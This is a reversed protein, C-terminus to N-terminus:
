GNFAQVFAVYDAASWNSGYQGAMAASAENLSYARAGATSIGKLATGMPTAASSASTLDYTAVLAAVMHAANCSTATYVAQAAAALTAGADRQSVASGWESDTFVSAVVGFAAGNWASEFYASLAASVANLSFNSKWLAVSLAGVNQPCQTLNFALALPQAMKDADTASLALAATVAVSCTRPDVLASSGVFGSQLAALMSTPTAASGFVSVLIQTATNLSSVKGAAVLTTVLQTQSFAEGIYNFAAACAVALQTNTLSMGAAIYAASVSNWLDTFATTPYQLLIGTAMANANATGAASAIAHALDAIAPGPPAYVSGLAAASLKADSQALAAAAQALTKGQSLAARAGTIAVTLGDDSAVLLTAAMLGASTTPLGGLVAPAIDGVGLSTQAVAIGLPVATLPQTSQLGAVLGAGLNAPTATYIPQVAPAIDLAAFSSAGLANSMNALSVSGAPYATNLAAALKGATNTQAGYNAHLIPGVDTVPYSCGSLASALNALIAGPYASILVTYMLGANPVEAAFHTKIVLATNVIEYPSAALAVTMSEANLSAYATSLVTYMQEATGLESAYQTKLVPAVLNAAYPIQALVGVLTAASTIESPYLQALTQAIDALQFSAGHLTQAMSLATALNTPYTTKLATGAGDAGAAVFPSEQLASAMDALSITNAGTISWAAVLLSVMKAATDTDSAYNSKLAPATQAPTFPGAKLAAAM